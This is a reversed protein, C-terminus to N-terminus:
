STFPQCLANFIGLQVGGSATKQGIQVELLSIFSVAIIEYRSIYLRHKSPLSQAETQLRGLYKFVGVGLRM